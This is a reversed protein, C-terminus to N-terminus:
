LLEFLGRSAPCRACPENHGNVSKASASASASEIGLRDFDEKTIECVPYAWLQDSPM